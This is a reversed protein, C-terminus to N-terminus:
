GGENKLSVKWDEQQSISRGCSKENSFNVSFKLIGRVLKPILAIAPIQDKSPPIGTAEAQWSM